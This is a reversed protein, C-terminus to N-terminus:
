MFYVRAAGDLSITDFGRVFARFWGWRALRTRERLDGQLSAAGCAGSAPRLWPRSERVAVPSFQGDGIVADVQRDTIAVLNLM